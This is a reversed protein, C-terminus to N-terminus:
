RWWCKNHKAWEGSLYQRVGGDKLIVTLADLGTDIGFALVQTPKGLLKFVGYTGKEEFDSLSLAEEAARVKVENACSDSGKHRGAVHVSVSTGCKPCKWNTGAKGYGM